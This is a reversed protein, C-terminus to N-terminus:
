LRGSQGYNMRSLDVGMPGKARRANRGAAGGNRMDAMMPLLYAPPISQGAGKRAKATAVAALWDADPQLVAAAYDPLRLLVPTAEIGHQRLLKAVVVERGLPPAAEGERVPVLPPVAAEAQGSLLNTRRYESIQGDDGGTIQGDNVAFGASAEGEAAAGGRGMMQGDEAPRASARDAKPLLIQLRMESKSQQSYRKVLGLRVLEDILGRVMKPTPEYAERQSGRPPRYRVKLSLGGNSVETAVGVLGTRVDMLPRLCLVYLRVAELSADLLAEQEAENLVLRM